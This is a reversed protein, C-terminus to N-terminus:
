NVRVIMTFEHGDVTVTMTSRAARGTARLTARGPEGSVPTVGFAATNNSTWEIELESLDVGAPHAVLVLDLREGVSMTADPIGDPGAQLAVPTRGERYRRIEVRELEPPRTEVDGNPVYDGGNTGNDDDDDDDDNDNENGGVILTGGEDLGPGNGNTGAVAPGTGGERAPSTYVLVGVAVVLVAMILISLLMKGKTNDDEGSYKGRGIRRAGCYPCRSRVGSYKRDCRACKIESVVSM